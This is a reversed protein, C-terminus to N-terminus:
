YKIEKFAQGMKNSRYDDRAQHIVEKILSFKKEFLRMEKFEYAQQRRDIKIYEPDFKKFKRWLYLRNRTEYYVQYIDRQYADYTHWLVTKSIQTFNRNRLVLNNMLLVSYGMQRITLCYDYDFTTRYYIPDFGETKEYIKKNIFTGVLHAGKVLRTEEKKDPKSECTYVPMPSIIGVNEEIESLIIKRKIDKYCDDEYYYGEELITVYDIDTNKAHNMAKLYDAVEGNSELHAYEVQPHKEKLANILDIQEAQHFNFIYLKDMYPLYTLIDNVVRTLYTSGEIKKYLLLYGAFKLDKKM